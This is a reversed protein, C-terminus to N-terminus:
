RKERAVSPRLSIWRAVADPYSQLCLTHLERLDHALAGRNADALSAVVHAFGDADGHAIAWDGGTLLEGIKSM